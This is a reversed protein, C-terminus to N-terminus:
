YENEVIYLRVKGVTAVYCKYELIYTLLILRWVDCLGLTLASDIKMMFLFYITNKTFRLLLYM